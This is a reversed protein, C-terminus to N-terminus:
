PCTNFHSVQIRVAIGLHYTDNTSTSCCIIRFLVIYTFELILRLLITSMLDTSTACRNVSHGLIGLDITVDETTTVSSIYETVGVHSHCSTSDCTIDEATTVTIDVRVRAVIHLSVDVTVGNHHKVTVSHQPLLLSVTCYICSSALRIDDRPCTCLIMRVAVAEYFIDAVINTSLSLVEDLPLIGMVYITATVQETSDITSSLYSNCLTHCWSTQKLSSSPLVRIIIVIVWVEIYETTAQAFLGHSVVGLYTHTHISHIILIISSLSSVDHRLTCAEESVALLFCSSIGTAISLINVEIIVTVTQSVIGHETHETTAELTLHGIVSVHTHATSREYVTYITAAVTVRLTFISLNYRVETLYATRGLHKSVTREDITIDEAATCTTIHSLACVNLELTVNLYITRYIAATVHSVYTVCFLSLHLCVSYSSRKNGTTCHEMVDEGTARLTLYLTRREDVDNVRYILALSVNRIYITIYIATTLLM